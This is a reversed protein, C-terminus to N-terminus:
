VLTKTCNHSLSLSLSFYNLGLFLTYKKPTQLFLFYDLCFSSSLSLLLLLLLWCVLLVLLSLLIPFFVLFDIGILKQRTNGEEGSYPSFPRWCFVFLSLLLLWWSCGGFSFFAISFL